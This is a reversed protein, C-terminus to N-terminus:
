MTKILLRGFMLPIAVNTYFIQSMVEFIKGSNSRFPFHFKRPMELNFCDKVNGVLCHEGSVSFKKNCINVICFYKFPEVDSNEMRNIVYEQFMHINLFFEPLGNEVNRQNLKLGILKWEEDLVEEKCMLPSGIFGYQSENVFDDSHRVCLFSEDPMLSVDPLLEMLSSCQQTSLFIKEMSYIIALDNAQKIYDSSTQDVTLSEPKVTKWGVMQCIMDYELLDQPLKKITIPRVLYREFDIYKETVVLAIDNYTGDVTSIYHPHLLWKEINAAYKEHAVTGVLAVWNEEPRFCHATTLIFRKSVVCGACASTFQFNQDTYTGILAMFSYEGLSHNSITVAELIGVLSLVFIITVTAM